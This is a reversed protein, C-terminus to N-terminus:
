WLEPYYQKAHALLPLWRQQHQYNWVKHVFFPNASPVEMHELSFEGMRTQPSIRERYKQHHTLFYKAVATDEVDWWQGKTTAERFIDFRACSWEDCRIESILDTLVSRKRM